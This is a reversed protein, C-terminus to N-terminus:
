VIGTQPLLFLVVGFFILLVHYLCKQHLKSVESSILIKMKRNGTLNLM